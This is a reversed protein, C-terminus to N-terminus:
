AVAQLVIYSVLGVNVAMSLLLPTDKKTYVPTVKQKTKKVVKAQTQARKRPSANDLQRAKNRIIWLRGGISKETRGLLEAMDQYSYGEKAYQILKNEDTTSWKKRTITM